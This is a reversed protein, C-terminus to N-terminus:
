ILYLIQKVNKYLVCVLVPKKLGLIPISARYKKVNKVVGQMVRIVQEVIVIVPVHPKVMQVIMELFIHATVVDMAVSM